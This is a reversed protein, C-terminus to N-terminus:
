AKGSFLSKLTRITEKWSGIGSAPAIEDEDEQLAYKALGVAASMTPREVIEAFAGQASPHVSRAKMGEAVSEFVRDSGALLSGGGTLLIGAGLESQRGSQEISRVAYKAIERM